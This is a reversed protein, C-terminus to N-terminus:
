KKSTLAEIWGVFTAADIVLVLTATGGVILPNFLAGLGFEYRRALIRRATRALLWLPIAALWWISHVAALLLFPILVAYHKLIGYHWDWQRGAWVNHKSYLVFKSFTSSFDPQLSWYVMAKPAFVTKFGLKEVEDMFMLDEAARLDPFRGVKEWVNKRLLCSAIFKGRIGDARQPQVYSIAACKDFLSNIVPSVNGYVIDVEGGSEKLGSVYLEPDSSVGENRRDLHQIEAVLNELWDAELKIGADTLAIWDNQANEIGINRGKGPTAGDTKILKITPDDTAIREVIAATDDTSGGDVLVVEDPRYTQRGISELLKEISEAENRVPVILSVAITMDNLRGPRKSYMVSVPM